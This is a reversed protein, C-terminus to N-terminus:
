QVSGDEPHSRLNDRAGSVASTGIHPAKTAGNDFHETALVRPRVRVVLPRRDERNCSRLCAWWYRLFSGLLGSVKEALTEFDFGGFSRRCGLEEMVREDCAGVSRDLICAVVCIQIM